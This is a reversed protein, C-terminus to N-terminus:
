VSSRTIVRLIVRLAEGHLPGMDASLPLYLRSPCGAHRVHAIPRFSARIHGRRNGLPLNMLGSKVYSRWIEGLNVNLELLSVSLSYSRIHAETYRTASSMIRILRNRDINIIQRLIIPKIPHSQAYVVTAYDNVSDLKSESAM